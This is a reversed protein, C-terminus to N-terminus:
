ILGGEDVGVGEDMSVMGVSEDVSVMGVSGVVGVSSM